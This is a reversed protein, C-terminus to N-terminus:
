KLYFIRFYCLNIYKNVEIIKSMKIEIEQKIKNVDKEGSLKNHIIKNGKMQVIEISDVLKNEYILQFLFPIKDNYRLNTILTQFKLKNKEEILHALLYQTLKRILEENELNLIKKRAEKYVRDSNNYDNQSIFSDIKSIETAIDSVINTGM